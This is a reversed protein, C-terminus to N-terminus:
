NQKINTIREINDKYKMTKPINSNEMNKEYIYQTLLEDIKEIKM